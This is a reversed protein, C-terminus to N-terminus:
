AQWKARGDEVVGRLRPSLGAVIDDLVPEGEEGRIQSAEIALLPLLPEPGIAAARRGASAHYRRLLHKAILSATAKRVRSDSLGIEAGIERSALRVWPRGAKGRRADFDGWTRAVYYLLVRFECGSANTMALRQLWVNDVQAFRKSWSKCPGSAM